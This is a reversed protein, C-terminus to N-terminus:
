RRHSQGIVGPMGGGREMHGMRGQRGRKVRGGIEVHIGRAGGADGAGDPAAQQHVAVAADDGIPRADQGLRFVEVPPIRSPEQLEDLHCIREIGFRAQAGALEDLIHALGADFVRGGRLHAHHRDVARFAQLEIGNKERLQVLPDDTLRRQHHDVAWRRGLRDPADIAIWILEVLQQKWLQSIDNGRM